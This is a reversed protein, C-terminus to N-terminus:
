RIKRITQKIKEVEPEAELQSIVEKWGRRRGVGLYWHALYVIREEPTTLYKKWPDKKM